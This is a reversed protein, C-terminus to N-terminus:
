TRDRHHHNDDNRIVDREIITLREDTADRWTELQEWRAKSEDWRDACKTLHNDIQDEIRAIRQRNDVSTRESALALDYLRRDHPDGSEHRHNVADNIERVLKRVDFVSKAAVLLIPGIVVAGAGIMAVVVQTSISEISSILASIIIM